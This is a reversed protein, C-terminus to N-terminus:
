TPHKAPYERVIARATKPGIVVRLPGARVSGAPALRVAEAAPPAERRRRINRIEAAAEQISQYRDEPDKEPV